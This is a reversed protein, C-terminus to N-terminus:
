RAALGAAVFLVLAVTLYAVPPRLWAHLAPADPTRPSGTALGYLGLVGLPLGLLVLVSSIVGSASPAPGFASERLIRLVPLAALVAAIGIVARAALRRVHRLGDSVAAPAAPRAIARHTERTAPDRHQMPDRQPVGAPVPPRPEAAWQGMPGAM